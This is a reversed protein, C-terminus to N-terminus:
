RTRLMRLSHVAAGWLPRTATVCSSTIYNIAASNLWKKRLLSPFQGRKRSAVRATRSEAHGYAIHNVDGPRLLCSPLRPISPLPGAWLWQCHERQVYM